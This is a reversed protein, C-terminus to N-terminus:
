DGADAAGGSGVGPAKGSALQALTTISSGPILAQGAADLPALYQAPPAACLSAWVIDAGVANGTSDAFTTGSGFKQFPRNPPQGAVPAYCIFRAM